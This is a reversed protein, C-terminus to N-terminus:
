PGAIEARDMSPRIVTQLMDISAPARGSQDRRVVGRELVEGGAVPREGGLSPRELRGDRGPLAQAGVIGRRELTVDPDIGGREHGLHGPARVRAHGDVDGAANRVQRVNGRRDAVVGPPGQFVHAQSRARRDALDGHIDDEDAGAGVSPDLVQPRRGLDELPSLHGLSDPRQDHGAALLDPMLGLGLPEVPDEGLRAGLPALGAAAHAQRHIGVPELGTLPRGARAVAVELAALSGASPSVKDARGHGGGGGDGAPEGVNARQQSM